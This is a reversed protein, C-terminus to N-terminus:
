RGTKRSALWAELAAIQMELSMKEDNFLVYDARRRKEEDDMQASIRAKIQEESASDRLMARKIRLDLPAYVMVVYDVATQFGSEFLIASEMAVVEAGAEAQRDAWLQFDDYVCPHIIQNIHEAHEPSSFLYGAVLPKNLTGDTHYVEAGLLDSLKERIQPHTVTLRKAERDTDYLPIGKKELLHAVYSKGSGIGGTIGIKIMRRM